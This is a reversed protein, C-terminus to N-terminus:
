SFAKRRIEGFRRHLKQAGAVRRPGAEDIEVSTVM